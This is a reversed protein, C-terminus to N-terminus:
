KKAFMAEEEEGLEMHPCVENVQKPYTSFHSQTIDTGIGPELILCM